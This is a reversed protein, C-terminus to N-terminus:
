FGLYGKRIKFTSIQIRSDKKLSFKNKKKDYTQQIRESFEFWPIM